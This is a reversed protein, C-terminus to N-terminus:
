KQANGVNKWLGLRNVAGQDSHWPGVDQDLTLPAHFTSTQEQFIVMLLQRVEFDPGTCFQKHQFYVPPTRPPTIVISM